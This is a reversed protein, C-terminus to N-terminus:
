STQMSTSDMAAGSGWCPEEGSKRSLDNYEVTINNISPVRRDDARDVLHKYWVRPAPDTVSKRRPSELTSVADRYSERGKVPGCLELTMAARYAERRMM